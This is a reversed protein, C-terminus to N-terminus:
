GGAIAPLLSVRDGECLAADVGVNAGNVFILRLEEPPIGLRAALGSVNEGLPIDLGAADPPNFRALSAFCRVSIRM